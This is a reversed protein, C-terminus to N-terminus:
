LPAQQDEEAAEVVKLHTEGDCDECFAADFVNALEWSQTEINWAAWADLLVNESGCHSCVWKSGAM